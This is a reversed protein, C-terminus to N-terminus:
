RACRFGREEHSDSPDFEAQIAFPGSDSAFVYVPDWIYGGGRSIAAPLGSFPFAENIGWMFDTGFAASGTVYFNPDWQEGNTGDGDGDPGQMWDAVWEWVNGVMDNVG